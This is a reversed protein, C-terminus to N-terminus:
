TDRIGVVQGLRERGVVDAVRHRPNDRRDALAYLDVRAREVWDGERGTLHHRRRDHLGAALAEDCGSAAVIDHNRVLPERVVSRCPTPFTALLDGALDDLDVRVSSEDPHGRDGEVRAVQANAVHHFAADEM